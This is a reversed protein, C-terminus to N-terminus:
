LPQPFMESWKPNQSILLINNRKLISKKKYVILNWLFTGEQVTLVSLILLQPQCVSMSHFLLCHRNAVIPLQNIFVSLGRNTFYVHAHTRTHTHTHTHTHTDTHPHMRTHTHTHAHPHIPTYTDPHTHSSTYSHTDSHSQSHSSTYSHTHRHKDTQM